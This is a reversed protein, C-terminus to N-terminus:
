AYEKLDDIEIYDGDLLKALRFASDNVIKGFGSDIVIWETNKIKLTDAMDKLEKAPDAFRIVPFTARGDSIVVAYCKMEPNRRIHALIEKRALLLAAGLPTGWGRPAKELEESIVELSRTFPVMVYADYENFTILGVEDREAYSDKLMARIASKVTEIQTPTISGSMDVIFMFSCVDKMGRVKERIDSPEVAIALGKRDRTRQFPAAARVTADLAVDKCKGRPIRFNVYRGRGSESIFERRNENAGAVDRLRITEMEEIFELKLTVSEKLKENRSRVGGVSVTGASEDTQIIQDDPLAVPIENMDATVAIEKKEEEEPEKKEEEKEEEEEEEEEEPEKKSVRHALGFVAATEIDGDSVETRGDLSALARATRAIALEGRHGQAGLEGCLVSISDVDESNLKVTNLRKRSEEILEALKRDKEAFEGALEQPNDGFKLETLNSEARKKLDTIPYTYVCVDFRDAVADPLDQEAPDMTAIVATRCPYVESIGERELSVEKNEVCSLLSILKKRDFLNVNDLLLFNGDARKMISDASVTKGDTVAKEFDAGGYLQGDTANVPVSIIKRDGIIRSFSRAIVSKATGPPGKILIGTYGDDVAACLLAKKVDETETVASFPFIVTEGSM